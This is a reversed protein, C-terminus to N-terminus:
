AAARKRATVLRTAAWPGGYWFRVGLGRTEVDLGAARLTSQAEATFKFDALLLVGGPKLVRAMERAADARGPADPVNHVALSSVVVDFSGDGFPMKRMDGTHLGVRSEVGEAHANRKTADMSNGSQDRAQWLDIGVAKGTTLRGAVMLLVAGRGCGVDLVLEQGSLRLGDLLSSWVVFKGRWTTYLYSAACSVLLLASLGMTAVGVADEAMFARAGGLFLPLAGLLMLAPVYPADTGYFGKVRKM